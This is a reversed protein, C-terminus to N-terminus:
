RGELELLRVKRHAGGAYNGVKAGTPVVRHCPVVIPIPNAGLANGTARAARPSGIDRAVAGYTAVEGYPIGVTRGLVRRGFDGVLSWDVPLEFTRRRRAFYEDLQRRPQDLAAADEIVRPSVRAALTGLSADVPFVDLYSIMVLGRPTVALLLDGVPSDCTAYAVDELGEARAATALRARDLAPPELAAAAAALRLELPDTPDSPDTMGM